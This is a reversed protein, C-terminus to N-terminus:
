SLYAKNVAYYYVKRGARPQLPRFNNGVFEGDRNKLGRLMELHTRSIYKPSNFITWTVKEACPPTTLAGAYRYVFHDCSESDDNDNNNNHATLLFPLFDMPRLPKEILTMTNLDLGGIAEIGCAISQFSLNEDEFRTENNMVQLFVGIVALSEPNGDELALDLSGYAESYHVLHIEADSHSGDVAHESGIGNRLGWHFHIQSLIYGGKLGTGTFSLKSTTNENLQIKLTHGDNRIYFSNQTAYYPDNFCLESSPCALQAPVKELNIPSQRNNNGSNCFGSWTSPGCEPKEYCFTSEGRALIPRSGQSSLILLGAQILFLVKQVRSHHLILNVMKSVDKILKVQLM